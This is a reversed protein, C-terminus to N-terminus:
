VKSRCQAEPENGSCAACNMAAAIALERIDGDLNDPLYLFRNPQRRLRRHCRAPYAPTRAGPRRREADATFDLDGSEGSATVISLHDGPKVGEAIFKRAAQKVFLLNGNQIHFDDFFFTVYKPQGPASPAEPTTTENGCDPGGEGAWL